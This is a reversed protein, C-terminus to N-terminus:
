TDRKRAVDSMVQELTGLLRGQREKVFNPSARDAERLAEADDRGLMRLARGKEWWLNAKINADSERAIGEDFARIALELYAHADAQSPVGRIPDGAAMYCQGLWGFARPERNDLAIAKLFLDTAGEINGSEFERIGKKCLGHYSSGFLGM